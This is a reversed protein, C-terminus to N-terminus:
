GAALILSVADRWAKNVDAETLPAGTRLVLERINDVTLDRSFAYAGMFVWFLMFLISYAWFVHNCLFYKVLHVTLRGAVM